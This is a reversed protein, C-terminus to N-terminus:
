TGCACEGKKSELINGWSDYAAVCCCQIMEKLKQRGRQVRSKMGSYSIGLHEAIQKQPM